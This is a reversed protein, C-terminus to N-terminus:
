SRELVAMAEIHSTQPFLDFARLDALEYDAEALVRLDRALTAPDCSVYVIRKAGLKGLATAGRKPLGTRPPDLVIVEPRVSVENALFEEVPMAAIVAKDEQGAAELNHSLDRVARKDSEVAILQDFQRALGLSFFGAGAYLEVAAGGKGAAQLVAEALSGRLHVNAQFFVGPGIRLTDEGVRLTVPGAQSGPGRTRISRTGEEGEALLWEAPAAPPDAALEGLISDIGPTLVPCTKVGRVDHSQLRRFGVHGGEAFVRARARYALEPSPMVSLVAPPKMRAIREVADRLITAKAELQAEYELHQWRCGGCDGAAPCAPERRGPGPELIERIRGRAFRPKEETLKIRLRDGPAAWPIFVVRGDELRAVGDGGAALSQVEVILDPSRTSEEAVSEAPNEDNM